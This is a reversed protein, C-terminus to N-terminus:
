FTKRAARIEEMIEPHDRQFEEIRAWLKQKMSSPRRYATRTQNNNHM